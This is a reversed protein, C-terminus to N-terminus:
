AKSVQIATLNSGAPIVQQINMEAFHYPAFVLGVQVKSSLKVTGKAAGVASSVKVADGEKFGCATADVPNMELYGAPGIALNGEAFTSTTGFHYLIKGSLLKLGAAPAASGKVESFTMSKEAPVFPGRVVYRCKGGACAEAKGYAPVLQKIESIVSALTVAEAKPALRGYLDALIQLDERADGVPKCAKGLKSLQHDLSTVSGSKEVDAAGPLVVDALDTLGSALIDQVVLFEVKDLAKQWRGSDPVSVTPNTAALYLVKIEGKEIGELIGQADLGKGPLPTSWAKEFEAKATTFNKLGPLLDTAVGMDLLGQINGKEDIPFIGGADSGIAGCLLALNAIALVKDEAGESRSVDAGFIIAVNKASGLYVAAEELMAESVGTVEAAKKLDV